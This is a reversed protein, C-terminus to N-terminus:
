ACRIQVMCIDYIMEFVCMRQTVHNRENICLKETQMKKWKSCWQCGYMCGVCMHIRLIADLQDMAISLTLFFADFFALIFSNFWFVCCCTSFTCADIFRIYTRFEYSLTELSCLTRADAWTHTHTHAWKEKTSIETFKLHIFHFFLLLLM